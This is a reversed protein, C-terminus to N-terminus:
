DDSLNDKFSDILEQDDVDGIANPKDEYRRQLREIVEDVPIPKVPQM